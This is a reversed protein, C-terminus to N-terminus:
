PALPLGLEADVMVELTLALRGEMLQELVPVRAGMKEMHAPHQAATLQVM